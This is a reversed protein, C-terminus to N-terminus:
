APLLAQTRAGRYWHDFNGAPIQAADYINWDNQAADIQIIPGPATKLAFRNSGATVGFRNNNIAVSPSGYSLYQNLVIGTAGPTGLGTFTNGTVQGQWAGRLDLSGYGSSTPATIFSNNQITASAVPSLSTSAVALAVSQKDNFTNGAIFIPLACTQVGTVTLDRIGDEAQFFFFCM